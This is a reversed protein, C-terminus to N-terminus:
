NVTSDDCVYSAIIVFSVATTATQGGRYHIDVTDAATYEYAMGDATTLGVLTSAATATAVYRATDIGDGVAVFVDEDVGVKLATIRAGKPIKFMQITDGSSLTASSTYEAVVTVTGTELFRAQVGSKAKNGTLTAM